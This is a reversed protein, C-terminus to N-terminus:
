TMGPLQLKVFQVDPDDAAEDASRNDGDSPSAAAAPVSTPKRSEGCGIIALTLVTVSLSIRIKM